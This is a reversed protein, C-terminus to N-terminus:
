QKGDEPLLALDLLKTPNKRALLDIDSDSIGYNKMMRLFMRFGEVPHANDHQGLDSSLICREAGVVKINDAFEKPNARQRAPMCPNVTFELIAGLDAMRLMEDRSWATAHWGVHTCVIKKFGIEKAYKLVSFIEESSVHGTGIVINAQAALDIIQTVEPSLKGDADLLYLPKVEEKLINSLEPNRRALWPYSPMGFFDIHRKAHVTPLWAVKVGFGIAARMASPNLGGVSHNFVISGFLEIGPVVKKVFEVRDANMAFISKLVLGRYGAERAELAIDMEDFPRDFLCPAAHLHMDIVGRILERDSEPISLTMKIIERENRTIMGFVRNQVDDLVIQSDISVRFLTSQLSSNHECRLCFQNFRM